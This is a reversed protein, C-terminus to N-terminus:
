HSDRVVNVVEKVWRIPRRLMSSSHQSTTSSKAPSSEQTEMDQIDEEHQLGLSLLPVHLDKVALVHMEESFSTRM